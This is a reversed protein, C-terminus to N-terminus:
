ACMVYPDHNQSHMQRYVDSTTRYFYFDIRSVLLMNYSNVYRNIFDYKIKRLILNIERAFRPFNLYQAFYLSKILLYTPLKIKFSAINVFIPQFTLFIVQFPWYIVCFCVNPMYTFTSTGLYFLYKLRNLLEM